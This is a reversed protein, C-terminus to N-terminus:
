GDTWVTSLFALASDASYVVDSGLVVDVVHEPPVSDGGWAVTAVRAECALAPRNLEVNRLLRAVVAVNNDTLTYRRLNYNFDFNSFLKDYCVKLSRLGPGISVAKV